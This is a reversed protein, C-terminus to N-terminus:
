QHSDRCKRLDGISCHTVVCSHVHCVSIWLFSQTEKDEWDSPTKFMEKFSKNFAIPTREKQNTKITCVALTRLFQQHHLVLNKIWGPHQESNTIKVAHFKKFM